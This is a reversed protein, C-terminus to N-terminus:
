FRLKAGLNKELNELIRAHIMEAEEELLTREDSRYELRITISRETESVGKGEYVDVFEINKLL